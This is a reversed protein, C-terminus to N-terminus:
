RTWLEELDKLIEGASSIQSSLERINYSELDIVSMGLLRGIQASLELNQSRAMTCLLLIFCTDHNLSGSLLSYFLESKHAERDNISLLPRYPDFGDHHVKPKYEATADFEDNYMTKTKVVIVKNYKKNYQLWQSILGDWDSIQSPTDAVTVNMAYYLYCMLDEKEIETVVSTPSEAGIPPITERPPPLLDDIITKERNGWDSGVRAEIIRHVSNVLPNDRHNRSLQGLLVTLDCYSELQSNRFDLALSMVYGTWDSTIRKIRVLTEMTAKRIPDSASVYKELEKVMLATDSKYNKKITEVITETSLDYYPSDSKQTLLNVILQSISLSTFKITTMMAESEFLNVMSNVTQIWSALESNKELDNLKDYLHQLNGFMSMSRETIETIFRHILNESEPCIYSLLMTESPTVEMYKECMRLGGENLITQQKHCLDRTLMFLNHEMTLRERQFLNMAAHCVSRWEYNDLLMETEEDLSDIQNTLQSLVECAVDRRRKGNNEEPLALRRRKFTGSTTAAAAAAAVPAPAECSMSEVGGRKCYSKLNPVLHLLHELDMVGPEMTGRSCEGSMLRCGTPIAAGRMCLGVWFNYLRKSGTLQYSLLKWMYMVFDDSINHKTYAYVFPLCMSEWDENESQADLIRLQYNCDFYLNSPLRGETILTQLTCERLLATDSECDNYYVPICVRDLHSAVSVIEPSSPNYDMIARNLVTSLGIVTHLPRKELVVQGILDHFPNKDVLIHGDKTQIFTVYGRDNPLALFYHFLNPDGSVILSKSVQPPIHTFLPIIVNYLVLLSDLFMEMSSVITPASLLRRRVSPLIDKFHYWIEDASYDGTPKCELIPRLLIELGGGGNRLRDVALVYDNISNCRADLLNCVDIAAVLVMSNIEALSDNCYLQPSDHCERRFQLFDSDVSYSFKEGVLLPLQLFIDPYENDTEM